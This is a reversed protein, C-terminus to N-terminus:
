EEEQRVVSESPVNINVIRESMYEDIMELITRAEEDCEDIPVDPTMFRQRLFYSITDLTVEDKALM